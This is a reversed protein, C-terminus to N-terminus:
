ECDEDMGASYEKKSLKGDGDKDLKEMKKKMGTAAFESADLYGDGNTDAKDFKPPAAFAVSSLALATAALVILRTMKM